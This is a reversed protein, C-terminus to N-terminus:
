PIFVRKIETGNKIIYFGKNLESTKKWGIYFGNITWIETTTAKDIFAEITKSPTTQIKISQWESAIYDNATAQIKITYKNDPQIDTIGYSATKVTDTLLLMGNKEVEIVYAEAYTTQKWSVKAVTKNIFEFAPNEPTALKGKAMYAFTINGNEDEQINALLRNMYNGTYATDCPFSNNSLEMNNTLGPYTDGQFTELNDTDYSPTLIGDAPIITMRQHKRNNNVANGTWAGRDYDIHYILMGKGYETDFWTSEQRNELIYYENGTADQENLIKYARIQQAKQSTLPALTTLQKKTALTDIHLWGMFEREYASYGTPRYGLGTYQGYDMIDWADLGFIGSLGNTNYFDPLGMAHSFEHCFTGIGDPQQGKGEYDATENVCLATQFTNGGIHSCFSPYYCAMVDESGGTAHEGDGAYVFAILPVNNDTTEYASFKTGCESLKSIAEKMMDTARLDFGGKNSGYFNSPHELTIPGLIEFKPKFLSDSQSIFYDSVSGFYKGVNYNAENFHRKFFAVAEKDNDVYGDTGIKKDAFNILVVPILPTGIPKIGANATTGLGARSLIKNEGQLFDEWLKKHKEAEIAEKLCRQRPNHAMCQGAEPLGTKGILAYYYGGDTDKAVRIGDETKYYFGTEDGSKIITLLSGDPQRVARKQKFAPSAFTCYCATWVLLLACVPKFVMM